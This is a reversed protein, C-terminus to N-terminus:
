SRSFTDRQFMEFNSHWTCQVQPVRDLVFRMLLTFGPMEKVTNSKYGYIVRLKAGLRKSNTEVKCILRSLPSM